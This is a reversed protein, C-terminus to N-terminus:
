MGNFEFISNMFKACSLTGMYIEDLQKETCNLTCINFCYTSEKTDKRTSFCKVNCGVFCINFRVVKKVNSFHFHFSAFETFFSHPMLNNSPPALIPPLNISTSFFKTTNVLIIPTFMALSRMISIM